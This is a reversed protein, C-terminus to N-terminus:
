NRRWSWRKWFPLASATDRGASEFVRLQAMWNERTIPRQNKLYEAVRQRDEARKEEISALGASM